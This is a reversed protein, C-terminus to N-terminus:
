RMVEIITSGLRASLRRNRERERALLREAEARAALAREEAARALEEAWRAARENRRARSRQRRAQERAAEAEDLAERLKAVARTLKAQSEELERRKRQNEDLAARAEAEAKQREQIEVALSENKQTVKAEAARAQAAQEDAARRADWVILLGVVAVVAVLALAGMAGAIIMRKTRAARAGLAFVAELYEREGGALTGRYRRYWRKAEAAAEGRWLLGGARGKAQWQRAANRLQELFVADDQNEDLWRRLLPWSHLLSEHVIEVTAGGSAEGGQVVLLRAQVLHEILAQVEAPDSGLECLESVSALARTREPTVLRLLLARALPQSRPPLQGLVQDAHSALAGEIGGIARYREDTLLKRRRDRGEWLKSATFQLLPLAGATHALHDLMHDVMAPTEFRYGALEAPGTIAEGLGERGPALLFFLGQGLEAMFRADEAVRDLFDSRISLMVRLPTTADDAVGALCTTFLRRVAPDPILTYLEEFQDVFLLIRSGHRRARARLVTGLFGPERALRALVAQQDAVDGSVDRSAEGTGAGTQEGTAGGSIGSSLEGSGSSSASVGTSTSMLPAILHGLAALPDRGPRIVLAEWAEGSQKLAPVVGARVFSSKGAGSPGVVGMLPRDRLRTVMAAIENTRGFFRDADAEQFASLGAYPSQDVHLRRGRGPLLPELADLLAQASGVRQDRQKRLCGDVIDALAEPVDAAAERLSPMPQDLLATVFLQRGRLPALPHRGALMRYLMIGVAWIDARHDIETGNWQEPSMYSVTGLLAGRRTLEVRQSEVEDESTGEALAAAPSNVQMLQSQMVEGRDHALVKAIGFDLVKITGTNTVFVNDPKLDRHVIGHAHARVLARVVPVMLEVARGPALREGNDLHQSLPAGELYELVMFPQDHLAGVEHIVVINEHSCQATTRAEVVFRETLAPTSGLVFKIAVRRGLKLDRALFVAGMGGRGLERILEYHEVRMGPQPTGPVAARRRGPRAPAMTSAGPESPLATAAHEAHEMHARSAPDGTASRIPSGPGSILSEHKSM